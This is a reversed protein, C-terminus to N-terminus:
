SLIPHVLRWMSYNADGPTHISLRLLTEEASILQVFFLFNNIGWILAGFQLSPVASYFTGCQLTVANNFFRM